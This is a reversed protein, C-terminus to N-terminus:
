LTEKNQYRTLSTTFLGLNQTCTRLPPTPRYVEAIFTHKKCHQLVRRIQSFWLYENINMSIRPQQSFAASGLSRFASKFLM